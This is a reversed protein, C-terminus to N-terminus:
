DLLGKPNIALCISLASERRLRKALAGPAAAAEAGHLILQLEGGTPASPGFALLEVLILRM